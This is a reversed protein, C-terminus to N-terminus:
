AFRSAAVSVESLWIELQFQNNNPIIYFNAILSLWLFHIEKWVVVFFLFFFANFDDSLHHVDNMSFTM